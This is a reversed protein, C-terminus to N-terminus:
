DERVDDSWSEYKGIDEKVRELHGRVSEISDQGLVLRLPPNELKSLDYVKQTGKRADGMKFDPASLTAFVAAATAYGASPALYHEPIPLRPASDWVETRFNGPEFLSIQLTPTTLQIDQYKSTFQLKGCILVKINWAPDLERALAQTIAETAIYGTTNVMGSDYRLFLHCVM